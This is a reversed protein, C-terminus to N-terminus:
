WQGVGGVWLYQPLVMQRGNYMDVQTLRCRWNLVPPKQQHLTKSGVHWQQCCGACDSYPSSAPTRRLQTMWVTETGKALQPLFLPFIRSIEFTNFKQLIDLFASYRVFHITLMRSVPCSILCSQQLRCFFM